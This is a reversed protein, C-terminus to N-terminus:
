FSRRGLKCRVGQLILVLHMQREMAHILKTGTNLLFEDPENAMLEFGEHLFGTFSKLKGHRVPFVALQIDVEIGVARRRMATGRDQSPICRPLDIHNPM